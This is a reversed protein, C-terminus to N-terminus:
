CNEYKGGRVNCAIIHAVEFSKLNKRQFLEDALAILAKKNKKLFRTVKRECVKILREIEKENRSRREETENRIYKYPEVEPLTKSCSMFGVRNIARAATKYVRQMDEDCGDCGTKFIVKEAILGACSIQIDAMMKEHTWFNRDDDVVSLYGGNNNITLRGIKFFKSSSAVLAHGAEHVAHQYNDAPVSDKIKNTVSFISEYIMDSTINSFGHKLVVENAISKISACAVGDLALGVEEDVLDSPLDVNLDKFIKKLLMTAEEGNPAPIRLIKELRGCRKLADPILWMNNTACLVLFDAPSDVGDLNDQLIRTAKNDRDILLDLEDIVIVCHGIEKAKKFTEELGESINEIEGKFVLTPAEAFKIAEKMLLSKGNGPDGYMLIGKPIDVGKEKYEDAKKFWEIVSKLIEKQAAHGIVKSLPEENSDYKNAAILDYPIITKVTENNEMIQDESNKVTLM